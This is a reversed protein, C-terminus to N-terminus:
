DRFIVKHDALWQGGFARLLVDTYIHLVYTTRYCLGRLVHTRAQAPKAPFLFLQNPGGYYVYRGMDGM